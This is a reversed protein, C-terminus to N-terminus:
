AAQALAASHAQIKRVAEIIDDMDRRSGLLLNQTMGVTTACVQRNGKLEKFSERYAKLREASWLRKFGRRTLKDKM